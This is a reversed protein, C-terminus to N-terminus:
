GGKRTKFTMIPTKFYFREIQNLTSDISIIDKSEKLERDKRITMYKVMQEKVPTNEINNFAGNLIAIYQPTKNCGKKGVFFDHYEQLSNFPIGASMVNYSKKGIGQVASFGIRIKGDEVTFNWSSKNIDLPLFAINKDIIEKIIERKIREDKKKEFIHTLFAAMFETPYHVKLWASLYTMVAYCTAHSVNFSYKGSDEINKWVRQAINLPIGKNIACSILKEKYEKIKNIKKKACAKLLHYGTDLDFGFAVALLMIQEQYIPICFTNKTVEYYEKCLPEIVGKHNLIKIYKKDLGSAICPGRVLALCAALEDLSHPHLSPMRSKYTYSSIQFIGSTLESSILQWVKEDNYFDENELDIEKESINAMKLTDDVYSITSLALLDFKVAFNEISEKTLTSVLIKGEEGDEDTKQRALPIVTSLDKPSIIIGAAHVSSAKPFGEMKIAVDFLEKHKNRMAKLSDFYDLAEDLTPEVMTTDGSEDTKAIRKIHKCIEDNVYNSDMGLVRGADKIAQRAKRLQLTYVKSCHNFGYREVVLQQLLGRKKADIDLDIDPLGARNVSLFREFMLNHKIPDVRTIGLLFSVLSGGCSGRGTGIAINNKKATDIIDKIILFYDDFQMKHITDLEMLLRPTYKHPEEVRNIIFNLRKTCHELLVQQSTKGEPLFDKFSPMSLEIDMKGDCMDAIRETNLIAEDIVKETVYKDDYVVHSKLEDEAMLYYIKDPYILEDAKSKALGANCSAVHYNHMLYDEKNLYHVDNTIVLKTNTKHALYVLAKNVFIQEKFNGIQLELYFDHFINKYENIKKVCKNVWDKDNLITQPIEGGVCASLAIINKGYKSLVFLDTRPRKDFLGNIQADNHIAILDKVGQSNIALLVLHYNRYNKERLEAKNKINRDQTVYAEMGIIPKIDNKKCVQYFDYINSLSGHDTMAIAPINLSKVKKIADETILTSDGISGNTYHNHLSIYL